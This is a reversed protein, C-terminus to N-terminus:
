RIPWVASRALVTRRRAHSDAAMALEAHQSCAPIATSQYPARAPARHRPALSERRVADGRSVPQDASRLGSSPRHHLRLSADKRWRERAAIRLPALRAWGARWIPCGARVLGGPGLPGHSPPMVIVPRVAGLGLSIRGYGPWRGGMGSCGCARWSLCLGLEPWTPRTPSSGVVPPNHPGALWSSWVGQAPRVPTFAIMSPTILCTNPM